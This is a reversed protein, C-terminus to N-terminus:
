QQCGYKDIIVEFYKMEYKFNSDISLIKGRYELSDYHLMETIKIELTLKRRHKNVIEGEIVYDYDEETCNKCPSYHTSIRKESSDLGFPVKVIDGKNLDKFENKNTKRFEKLERAIRDLDPKHTEFNRNYCINNNEFLGNKLADSHLNLLNDFRKKRLRDIKRSTMFDYIVDYMIVVEVTDCDKKLRIDTWEMGVYRFLLSDTEQPISIKFRGDMDTKGLFVNNSNEIELGPLPELDESIVRGIITRTQGNLNLNFFLATLILIISIKM